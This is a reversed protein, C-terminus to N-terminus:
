VVRRLKSFKRRVSEKENEQSATTGPKLIPIQREGDLKQDRWHALRETYTLQKLRREEWWDFIFNM